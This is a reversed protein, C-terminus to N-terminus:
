PVDNIVEGGDKTFLARLMDLDIDLSIARVSGDAYGANFIGPHHGTLGKLPNEADYELDDPKTWVVAADDSADVLMITKSTGDTIRQLRAGDKTGDFILEDGVPAVYTTKGDAQNLHSSPCLYVQPMKAILQKNHESDWPEDLHFQEYLGQGQQELYPLIHVRWSLLPKDDDSYNAHAPFENQTAHYNHMALMLQKLNNSSQARRAAERAAQVAPLLLAVLIGVVAMMQLENGNKGQKDPDIPFFALKDGERVPRVFDLWYDLMRQSYAMAAQEVPDDSQQRAMEAALQTRADTIGEEILEELKEGAAEDDAHINVLPPLPASFSVAFEVARIHQPAKLYKQFQPPMENSAAGLGMTILPRLSKTDVALYFDDIAPRDKIESLLLSTKPKDGQKLLKRLMPETAVILTKDDKMYLSPAAAERSKLYPMGDLQAPEAHIIFEPSLGELTFPQNFEFVLAYFPQVGLMPEAIATVTEIDIPDVGMFKIGAAAFVEVPLMESNEATLIQRPRLYAVAVSQPTLWTTDVMGATPKALLVDDSEEPNLATAPTEVALANRKPTQARAAALPSLLMAWALIVRPAWNPTRLSFFTHM